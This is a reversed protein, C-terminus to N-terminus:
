TLGKSFFCTDPMMHVYQKGKLSTSIMFLSNTIGAAQKANGRIWCKFGQTEPDAANGPNAPRDTPLSTLAEEYSPRASRGGFGQFACVFVGGTSAAIDNPIHFCKSSKQKRSNWMSKQLRIM